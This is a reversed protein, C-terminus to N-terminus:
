PRNVRVLDIGHELSHMLYRLTVELEDQNCWYDDIQGHHSYNSRNFGDDIDNYWIVTCGIVAIVWFGGGMDGYPHQIWKVPEVKIADWMRREPPSMRAIGQSIRELLAVKDIPQWENDNIDSM